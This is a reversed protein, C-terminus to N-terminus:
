SQGFIRDKEHAFEEDSLKGQDHLESLIRLQEAKSQGQGGRELSLMRDERVKYILTQLGEPDPIDTYLSQGTEGASEIVLDGSGVMREFVSQAFSITNIMELPIEKGRKSIFGTRHIVRENTIVHQTTLWRVIGRITVLIWLVAVVAPGYQQLSGGAFFALGIVLALAAFTIGLPGLISTWHPRFERVIEEGPSLLRTPYPVLRSYKGGVGAAKHQCAKEGPSRLAGGGM